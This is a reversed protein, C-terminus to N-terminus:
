HLVKDPGDGEKADAVEYKTLCYLHWNTELM